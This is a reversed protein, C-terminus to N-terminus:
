PAQDQTNPRLCAAEVGLAGLTISCSPGVCSGSVAFGALGAEASRCSAGAASAQANITLGSISNITCTKDQIRSYPPNRYYCHSNPANQIFGTPSFRQTFYRRHEIHITVLTDVQAFMIPSHTMLRAPLIQPSSLTCAVSAVSSVTPQSSIFHHSVTSQDTPEAM